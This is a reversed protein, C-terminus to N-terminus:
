IINHDLLVWSAKEWCFCFGIWAKSWGWSYGMKLPSRIGFYLFLLSYVQDWSTMFQQPLGLKPLSNLEPLLERLSDLPRLKEWLKVREGRRMPWEKIWNASKNSNVLSFFLCLAAMLRAQSLHGVNSDEDWTPGVTAVPSFPYTETCIHMCTHTNVQTYVPTM